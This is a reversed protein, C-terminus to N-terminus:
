RQLEAGRDPTVLAATSGLYTDTRLAPTRQIATLLRLLTRPPHTVQIQIGRGRATHHADVLALFGGISLFRLEACDCILRRLQYVALAASLADRWETMTAMDIEGGVALVLVDPGLWTRGIQIQGQPLRAPRPAPIHPVAPSNRRLLDAM